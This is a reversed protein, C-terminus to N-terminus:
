TSQSEYDSSSLRLWIPSLSYSRAMGTGVIESILLCPVMEIEQFTSISTGWFRVSSNEVLEPLRSCSPDARSIERISPSSVSYCASSVSFMKMLLKVALCSSIWISKTCGSSTERDSALSWTVTLKVCAAANLLAYPMWILGLVVTSLCSMGFCNALSAIMISSPLAGITSNFACNQM